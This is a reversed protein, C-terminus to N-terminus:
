ILEFVSFQSGHQACLSNEMFILIIIKDNHYRSKGKNSREGESDQVLFLDYLYRVHELLKYNVWCNTLPRIRLCFLVFGWKSTRLM